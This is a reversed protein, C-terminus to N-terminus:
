GGGSNNQMLQHGSKSNRPVYLSNATPRKLLKQAAASAQLRHSQRRGAAPTDISEVIGCTAGRVYFRKNIRNECRALANM